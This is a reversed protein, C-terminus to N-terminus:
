PCEEALRDTVIAVDAEDIIRDNNVDFELVYNPDGLEQGVRGAAAQVDGVDIIEDENLDGFCSTVSIQGDGVQASITKGLRAVLRVDDLELESIGPQKSVFNIVALTGGGNPGATDGSTFAVFSIEGSTNDIETVLPNTLRGTSDLFNGLVVDEIEIVKPNFNLTGQFAGLDTVNAVDIAITGAVGDENNIHGPNIWVTPSGDSSPILPSFSANLQHKFTPPAEAEVTPEVQPTSTPPAATPTPSPVTTPPAESYYSLDVTVIEKDKLYIQTSSEASVAQTPLLLVITYNGANLGTISYRGDGDTRVISGNIDLELGQGPRGTSLDTIQGYIGAKDLADDDGGTSNDSDDDDGLGGSSPTSIQPRPPPTVFSAGTPSPQNLTIFAFCALVMLGAVMVVIRTTKSEFM